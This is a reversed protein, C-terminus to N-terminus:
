WEPSTGFPAEFSRYFPIPFRFKPHTYGFPFASFTEIRTILLSLKLHVVILDLCFFAQDIETQVSWM